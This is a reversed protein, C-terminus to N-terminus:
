AYSWWLDSATEKVVVRKELAAVAVFLSCNIEQERFSSPFACLIPALNLCYYLGGLKSRSHDNVIRPTPFQSLAVVQLNM